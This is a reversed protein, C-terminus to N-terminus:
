VLVPFVVPPVKEAAPPCRETEEVVVPTPAVSLWCNGERGM